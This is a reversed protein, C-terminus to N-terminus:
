ATRPSVVRRNAQVTISPYAGPIVLNGSTTQYSQAM